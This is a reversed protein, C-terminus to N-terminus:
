SELVSVHVQCPLCVQSAPDPASVSQERDVDMPDEISAGTGSQPEQAPTSASTGEEDATILGLVKKQTRIELEIRDLSKKADLLVTAADIVAELRQINAQTPM